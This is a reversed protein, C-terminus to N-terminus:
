RLGNDLKRSGLPHGLYIASVCSAHHHGPQASHYRHWWALLVFLSSGEQTCCLKVSLRPKHASWEGFQDGLGPSSPVSISVPKKNIMQVAVQWFQPQPWYYGQCKLNLCLVMARPWLAMAVEEQMRGTARAGSAASSEFVAGTAIVSFLSCRYLVVRSRDSRRKKRFCPRAGPAMEYRTLARHFSISSPDSYSFSRVWARRCVTRLSRSTEM